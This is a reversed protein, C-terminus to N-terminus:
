AEREAVPRRGAYHMLCWNALTIMEEAALSDHRYEGLPQKNALSEAMAEDLHIVVPLLRRQTQLWVQYLDEQLPSSMRLGNILIHTDAPLPQQHLRIHCNADPKLITLTFHSAEVLPATWPYFGHPLDLLIWQYRGERELTEAIDAITSLTDGLAAANQLEGPQLHGFPLVDILSTYRLGADRWDEGDLVARAWGSQRGIEDNFSLRLMNDPGADIVLVSEGLLQLSWALAATISTTGVGGRVGQLGLIAM